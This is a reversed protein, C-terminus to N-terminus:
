IKILHSIDKPKYNNVNVWRGKEWFLYLGDSRVQVYQCDSECILPNLHTAGSPKENMKM